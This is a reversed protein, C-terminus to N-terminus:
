FKVTLIFAQHRAVKLISPVGSRLMLSSSSGYMTSKNPTGKSTVFYNRSEDNLDLSTKESKSLMWGDHEWSLASGARRDGRRWTKTPTLGILRSINDPDFNMGTLTFRVKLSTAM